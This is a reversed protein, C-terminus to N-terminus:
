TGTKVFGPITGKHYAFGLEGSGIVKIKELLRDIRELIVQFSGSKVIMM